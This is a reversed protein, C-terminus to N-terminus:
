NNELAAEPNSFYHSPASGFQKKFFRSFYLPDDFGLDLAVEKVSKRGSRLEARATLAIRENIAQLATKGIDSKLNRNLKEPTVNLENSYFQIDKQKVHHQELLDQFELVLDSIGPTTSPVGSAIQKLKHDAAQLLISRLGNISRDETFLSNSKIISDLEDIRNRILSWEESPLSIQPKGSIRNFVVGDCFVESRKVKVCFFDHHFAISLVKADDPFTIQENPSLPILEGPKIDIPRNELVAQHNNEEVFFIRYLDSPYQPAIHAHKQVMLLPSSNNNQGDNSIYTVKELLSQETM